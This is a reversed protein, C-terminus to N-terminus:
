KTMRKCNQLNISIQNNNVHYNMGSLSKLVRLVKDVPENNFSVTYHRYNRNNNELTVSVNYWRELTRAIEDFSANEFNLTNKRWAIINDVAVKGVSHKGSPKDYVFQQNRTLSKAFTEPKAGAATKDIEVIGSEVAVRIQQDDPYAKINFSTGIDAITIKGTNISFPKAADHKVMFFAEGTLEIHRSTKGYNSPIRITSGSNLSALTGDPLQLSRKQGYNAAITTYTVLTVPVKASFLKVLFVGAGAFLLVAAVQLLRRGWMPRVKTVPFLEAMEQDLQELAASQQQENVLPQNKDFSAFWDEILKIEQKSAKGHQYREFLEKIEKNM